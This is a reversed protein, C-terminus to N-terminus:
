GAPAPLWGEYWRFVNGTLSGIFIEGTQSVNLWHGPSEMSGLIDGTEIDVRMIRGALTAYTNNEVNDRQTMVWVEDSRTIFISQVSGLHSWMQLLKGHEDFIQVRNNERDSAYVRGRSDVAVSHVIRFEGPATGPGGWATLFTGDSAFKVVRSNVYGDSVYVEDSPGFAIDTPRNFTKEDNGAQGKSGLTMLLEGDNSFKMVQHDRSDTVWINDDGDVRLGHESGFMGRGWSRLYTGKANFVIIPDATEGRHFVFVQGRSDTAVASVRGFTWGKPMTHSDEGFRIDVRYKLLGGEHPYWGQQAAAGATLALILVILSLLRGQSM